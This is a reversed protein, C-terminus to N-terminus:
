CALQRLAAIVGADQEPLVSRLDLLLTQAHVRGVVAPMGMRLRQARQEAQTGPVALAVSALMDGPLSGGGVTAESDRVCSSPWGLARAMAGARVRLEEVSAALMRHLPLGVAGERAHLAATAHLAAVATKDLRLARALAHRRCREVLAARGALLGAQPGGLLKDGSFTVLDAGEALYAQVTPERGSLEGLAGSGLDALLPVARARALAALEALTPQHVFGAQSFNSLHVWLIASAGADLAAAYDGLHTRNTSGVEAIRAGGAAAMEAVRFGDGIEVMQGRSLVVAGPLGLATCALLLAAGGNNVVHVDEAGLLAQLLPRLWVLRSGRRGSELAIELECCGAAAVMAAVAEAALPARGLNTHLLVGTANIVARPRPVLLAHLRAAVEGAVVATAQSMDEPVDVGDGAALRAARRAALAQQVARKKLAYAAPHAALDPHALVADVRPLKMGPMM